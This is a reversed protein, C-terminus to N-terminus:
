TWDADKAERRSFGKWFVLDLVDRQRPTLHRLAAKLRAQPDTASRKIKPEMEPRSLGNNFNKIELAQLARSSMPVEVQRKELRALEREM